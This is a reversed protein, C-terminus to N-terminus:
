ADPASIRNKDSREVRSGDAPVRVRASSSSLEVPRASSTTKLGNRFRYLLALSVILSWGPRPEPVAAVTLVSDNGLTDVAFREQLDYSIVGLFGSPSDTLTPGRTGGGQNGPGNCFGDPCEGPVQPNTLDGLDIEFKFISTSSGTLAPPLHFAVQLSMSSGFNLFQEFDNLSATNRITLPLSALNPNAPAVDGDVHPSPASLLAGDTHFANVTVSAPDSGTGPSFQLYIGGPRNLLSSTNITLDYVAEAFCLSCLALFAAPPIIAHSRKIM